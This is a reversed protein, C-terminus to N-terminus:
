GESGFGEVFYKEVSMDIEWNHNELKLSSRM